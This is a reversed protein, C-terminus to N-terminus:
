HAPAAPEVALYRWYDRIYPHPRYGQVQPHTVWSDLPHATGKYPMYAVSLRLMERILADREPGDPLVRQREHLANLEPLDIRSRNAQGKSPGYLVDTFYSGDPTAAAWGTGWMMLRGTRSAKINEQWQAVRFESRLGLAAFAKQWLGQLNRSAQTPEGSYEIRLPSGDPTERWGDGDRDAYGYLDLLAKARALDHEGMESRFGPDYGSVGPPLVSQPLTAQGRRVLAIERQADYALAIARRLAVQHPALGGLVPHELNFMTYFTTPSVQQHLAVGRKALFPALRGNPAAQPAFEPPVAVMDIEGNLFALWRPQAEEIFRIEVRENLPLRRGRFREAIRRGAEDGALPHEDHFRHYAPNRQLVVLTGRVWKGLRYPGTGVPHAGIDGQHHAVVERAVAGALSPSALVYLLRPAPRAVRLEFRYRDLVRAGDVPADYDFPTKDRIARQRLESLGLLGAGEYHFLVPSRTAPDYYRKIAYVYDAAVLERPRGGFAPHEAFFIGPRITFVFRRHGDLVEPLAAATNPKLTTPAGLQDYTLPADFLSGVLAASVTDSTQAPDFNNERGVVGLRLVGARAGPTAAAPPASAAGAAGTAAAPGGAGATAVVALAALLRRAAPWPSRRPTVTPPTPM